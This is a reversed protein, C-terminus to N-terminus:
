RPCRELVRDGLDDRFTLSNQRLLLTFEYAEKSGRGSCEASIHWTQPAGGATDAKPTVSKFRCHIKHQDYGTATMVLPADEQDQGLACQAPGTGWTGVYGEETRAIDIGFGFLVLCTLAGFQAPLTMRM